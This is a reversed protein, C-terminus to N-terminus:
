RSQMWDPMSCRSETGWAASGDALCPEIGVWAARAGEGLGGAWCFTTLESLARWSDFPRGRRRVSPIPESRASRGSITTDDERLEWSRRSVRGAV